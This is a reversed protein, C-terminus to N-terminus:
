LDEQLEKSCIVTAAAQPVAEPAPKGSINNRSEIDLEKLINVLDHLDDQDHNAEEEGFTWEDKNMLAEEAM